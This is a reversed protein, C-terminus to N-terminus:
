PLAAINKYPEECKDDMLFAFLFTSEAIAKQMTYSQNAFNMLDAEGKENNLHHNNMILEAFPGGHVSSSLRTYETLRNKLFNKIDKSFINLQSENRDFNNVIYVLIKKIQFLEGIKKLKKNQEDNFNWRTEDPNIIFNFSSIKSTAELDECGKLNKYYDIGVSDNNDKLARTYLYLHRFYHEILSRFLISSSYICGGQCLSVISSSLYGSKAVFMLLAKSTYKFNSKLLSGAVAPLSLTIIETLETYRKNIENFKNEMLTNRGKVVPM